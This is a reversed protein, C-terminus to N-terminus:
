LWDPLKQQKGGRAVILYSVEKRSLLKVWKKSIVDLCVGSRKDDRVLPFRARV